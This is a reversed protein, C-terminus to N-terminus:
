HHLVVATFLHGGVLVSRNSDKQQYVSYGCPLGTDSNLTFQLKVQDLRLAGGDFRKRRLNVAMKCARLVNECKMTMLELVSHM